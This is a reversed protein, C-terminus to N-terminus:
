NVERGRPRDAIWAAGRPPALTRSRGGMWRKRDGLDQVGQDLRRWVSKSLLQGAEWCGVCCLGYTSLDQLALTATFALLLWFAVGFPLVFLTWHVLLGRFAVAFPPSATEQRCIGHVKRDTLSERLLEMGAAEEASTERFFTVSAAPSRRVTGQLVLIRPTPLPM